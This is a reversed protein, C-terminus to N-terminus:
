IPLQLTFSFGRKTTMERPKGITYTYRWPLTKDLWFRPQRRSSIPSRLANLYPVKQPSNLFSLAGSLGIGVVFLM